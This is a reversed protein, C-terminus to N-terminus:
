ENKNDCDKLGNRKLLVWIGLAVGIVFVIIRAPVLFSGWLNLRQVVICMDVLIVYAILHKHLICFGFEKSLHWLLLNVLLHVLAEAYYLDVGMLLLGTHLAYTMAAIVPIYKIGLVILRRNKM